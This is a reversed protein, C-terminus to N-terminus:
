ARLRILQQDLEIRPGHQYPGLVVAAHRRGGSACWAGTAIVQRDSPQCATEPKTRVRVPRWPHVSSARDPAVSLSPSSPGVAATAYAIPHIPWSHCLGPCRSDDHSRDQEHALYPQVPLDKDIESWEDFLGVLTADGLLSLLARLENSVVNFPLIVEGRIKRTTSSSLKKMTSASLDAGIAWGLTRPDSPKASLQAGTPMFRVQGRRLTGKLGVSGHWHIQVPALQALLDGQKGAIRRHGGQSDVHLHHVAERLFQV